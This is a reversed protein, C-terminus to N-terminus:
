GIRVKPVAARALRDAEENLTDGSHGRVWRWCVEKGQSAEILKLWLDKNVVEKGGATRWGKAEWKSRWETMGKVLYQSDSVITIPAAEDRKIKLLGCLAATLEMRNNTTDKSAGSLRLAKIEAGEASLRRLIVAYGGPGPNGLCAGDTHILIQTEPATPTIIQDTM